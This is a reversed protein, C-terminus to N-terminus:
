YEFKTGFLLRIVENKPTIVERIWQIGAYSLSHKGKRSAGASITGSEKSDESREVTIEPVYGFGSYLRWNETIPKELGLGYSFNASTKLGEEDELSPKYYVDLFTRFDFFKKQVGVSYIGNIRTPTVDNSKEITQDGTSEFYQTIKQEAHSGFKFLNFKASAGLAWSDYKKAVGLHSSLSWSQSENTGFGIFDNGAIEGAFGIQTKNSVRQLAMTLGLSLQPDVMYSGGAQLGIEDNEFSGSVTIDGNAQEFAGRNSDVVLGYGFAWNGFGETTAAYIPIVELEPSLDNASDRLIFYQFTNTSIFERKKPLWSMLAPNSTLAGQSGLRAQGVGAMLTELGSGFAELQVVQSFLPFSIFAILLYLM